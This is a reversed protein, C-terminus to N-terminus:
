RSEKISKMTTWFEQEYEDVISKTMDMYIQIGKNDKNIIHIMYLVHDLGNDTYSCITLYGNKYTLPYEKHEHILVKDVKIGKGQFQLRKAISYQTVDQKYNSADEVYVMIAPIIERGEKDEISSRKFIYSAIQGEAKNTLEWESNPLKMFMEAENIIYDTKFEHTNKLKGTEDYFNWLGSRDGDKFDGDSHKTGDERFYQTKGNQLGNKFSTQISLKGNPHYETFTGDLNGNQYNEIAELNGNDAYWKHEGTEKDDKYAGIHKIKGNSHYYEFKGEKIEPDISKLTGSMQLQNGKIFFDKRTWQGNENKDIRYFVASKKDTPKWKSDFFLSDQGFSCQITLICIILTALKM